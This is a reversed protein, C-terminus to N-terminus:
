QHKQPNPCSFTQYRVHEFLGSPGHSRIGLIIVCFNSSAEFACKQRASGNELKKNSFFCLAKERHFLNQCGPSIRRSCHVFPGCKGSHISAYRHSVRRSDLWLTLMLHGVFGPRKKLFIGTFAAGGCLLGDTMGISLLNHNGTCAEYFVIM